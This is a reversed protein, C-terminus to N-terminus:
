KKREQKEFKEWRQSTILRVNRKGFFYLFIWQLMVILRNHFTVLYAVHIFSWALWALFGSIQLRGVKAIAKNKGITAMSGKDWYRFPPRKPPQLAKRIVKAVYHGQQIAVPAVGPLTQGPKKDDKAHAADGIVFIEPHGPITLDPEVIVRGALDLPVELTKLLSPAENGAAWIVNFAEIFENGIRVGYPTVETVRTNLLLRVGLKELQKKAARQLHPPFAPLVDPLGEILYIESLEPKFRRFNKCLTKTAIEAIAGAMECGTPGGGIIVFRLYRAIEHPDNIKEAFEYAVLIRERIRIADSITKLGPAYEKWQGHGFYSHTTGPALILYDYSYIQGDKLQIQRNNKHIGEVDGLIVTANGQKALVERIPVAIDGPSLAASAVQYLLPQFLHHNTKDILLVRVSAKKLSQAANLGAFGGGVIIVQPEQEM